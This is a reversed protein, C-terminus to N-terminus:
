GSTFIQSRGFCSKTPLPLTSPSEAWSGRATLTSAAGSGLKLELCAEEQPVATPIQAHAQGDVVPTLVCEASPLFPM